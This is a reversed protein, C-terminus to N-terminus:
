HVLDNLSFIKVGIEDDGSNTLFSITKVEGPLLDFFNDSFHGEADTFLYVNKALKDTSLMIRFGNKDHTIEKTIRPKSLILDKPSVFYFLNQALLSDGSILKASLVHNNQPIGYIDISEYIGSSTNNIQIATNKQWKINGEFDIIKLELDAQIDNQHDSIIFVKVENEHNEFSILVDKYIERIRYHLAKWRNYYDISSWSIVPWCDNLQWYLTGMCQPMARRQAEIAMSIGHAQVLQSVYNYEKFDDPVPFDQEMYTKILEMGRPHKQHNLLALSQLNKDASSLCSDLTRLDPFGQFGYESMFRGVKQEYVEFPEEGWWVGWYHMDGEKLAEEHGWGIKPSSPIYALGPSNSFVAQPLISEFIQLYHNWLETSDVFSYNFAEQWGWNHWGESVENNGCWLAISPHNRLRKVQYEAEQKVNELFASDGPYMNCAFMFDQWVLIGHEDCLDYFIDKEYIGGGWVRLMNMNADVANQITQRYKVNTVRSLFNDEPIYNAGKAFFPQGNISFYFSEGISDKERVLDIMRIGFEVSDSVRTKRAGVEFNLNYLPHDGMGNPWWLKPDAIFIEKTFVTSGKKIAIKESYTRNNTTFSIEATQNQTSEIDFSIEMTAVSDAISKTYVHIDNIRVNNWGQLYVPKWIGQTLFKPGWDWGYQYPAKRTFGSSDPLHYPLEAAKKREIKEPATFKVLLENEGKNLQDKVEVTWQRFMNDAELILSDNLYVEAYTDLGDFVLEVHDNELVDDATFTTKYSWNIEGIWQLQKENEGFFPDPIVDNSLLDTHVSGPVTAILWTQSTDNKFYWNSDLSVQNVKIQNCSFLFITLINVFLFGYGSFRQM